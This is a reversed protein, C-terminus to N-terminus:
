RSACDFANQADNGRSKPTGFNAMVVDGIFKDVTGNNEFIADVRRKAEARKAKAFKGHKTRADALHALGELTRPGTLLGEMSDVAGWLCGLLGNAHHDKAREQRAGKARGISALRWPIGKLLNSKTM